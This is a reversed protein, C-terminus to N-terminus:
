KTKTKLIVPEVEPVPKAVLPLYEIVEGTDNRTVSKASVEVVECDVEKLSQGSRIDRRLSEAEQELARLENKMATLEAKIESRKEDIRVLKAELQLERDDKEVETLAAMLTRNETAM